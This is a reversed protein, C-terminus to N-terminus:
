ELDRQKTLTRIQKSIEARARTTLAGSCAAAGWGDRRRPPSSAGALHRELWALMARRATRPSGATHVVSLRVPLKRVFRVLTIAGRVMSAHKRVVRVVFCSAAPCHHKVQLSPQICGLGFDGFNELISDRLSSYLASLQMPELSEALVEINVLLHREAVVVM